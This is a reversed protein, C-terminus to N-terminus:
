QRFRPGLLESQTRKVFGMGLLLRAEIHVGETVQSESNMMSKLMETFNHKRYPIFVYVRGSTEASNTRNRGSPVLCFLDLGEEM